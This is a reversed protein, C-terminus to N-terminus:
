YIKGGVSCYDTIQELKEDLKEIRKIYNRDRSFTIAEVVNGNSYIHIFRYYKAGLRVFLSELWEDIFNM